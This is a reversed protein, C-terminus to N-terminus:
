KNEELTAFCASEQLPRPLASPQCSSSINQGLLIPPDKESVSPVSHEVPSTPIETPTSLPSEEAPGVPQDKAKHTSSTEPMSVSENPIKPHERQIINSSKQISNVPEELPSVSLLKEKTTSRAKLAKSPEQSTLTSSKNLLTKPCDRADINSPKGKANVLREKSSTSGPGQKQSKKKTLSRLLSPKNINNVPALSRPTKTLQLTSSAASECKSQTKSEDSLLTKGGLTQQKVTSTLMVEGATSQHKESSSLVIKGNSLLQKGSSSLLVRGFPLSNKRVPALMVKGAPLHNKGFSALLVKGSSLSKKGLTTLLVKGSPLSKQGTSALFLKKGAVSNQGSGLIIKGAPVSKQESSGLIAKGTTKANTGLALVVKGSGSTSSVTPPLLVKKLSPNSKHSDTNEKANDVTEKKPSPGASDCQESSSNEYERIEGPELPHPGCPDHETCSLRGDLKSIFLMGERHQKCFSSPCMECFSAAEKRCVDCQHWPCEWKGAPRRTLSLCDAHFVKPCGPRKCSVLQGGDGCSFCEDEHEKVLERAKRKRYKKKRARDESVIPQNKPRVGLFGSCNPAGCKCVTKGNGLCELNYNFTLETGAKIDCLAFLGVRTDGNVTWKQTECNPQCCHNMFRAFNGKPGADIVRDKDLTLMYFNTIDQEQAYRIRARCEEEDIMEGVYENVFEGKKIDSKCRLGWGRSLTRFIEVEPYQRKSFAQNQCREGAPCVQPHCEYLLMRNICESDQGCPNEDSAKCNCRPIESLDATFIQVKGIPRNVKIHKYPPPKKDNKKEEQLQRIEKQAKLEEFRDAAEMLGKKYTADVGKSMKDKNLADGEMYPFVRAQHTWLYDNSGFFLVPFEGIDHKMKQINVPINKPHCVEAPWWRYRGVKVWVVEKYHPKKGAKCDNCFWSGEPMNINLCERHFAAPCSECCLLSGGESCVFCWSVNVHEHNKCGRRPTFHNPCIISNSALTVTGAAMCFDNAHYAVPCRVCRMLRGKSASPNSPNTAHCTMCIHLSCRVGKNHQITPPYKIACKEHYYKGCLSVLCRKVTQDSAKCVFCTHVGSNLSLSVSSCERCIFKGEPMSDMGLCELHFAGCCQSECLLLEGPKECVQCVNEKMAAGGGRESSIKKSLPGGHEHEQGDDATDSPSTVGNEQLEMESCLAERSVVRKKQFKGPLRLRKRKRRNESLRKSGGRFRFRKLPNKKYPVPDSIKAVPPLSEEEDFGLQSELDDFECVRPILKSKRRNGGPKPEPSEETVNNSESKGLNTSSPPNNKVDSPDNAAPKQSTIKGSCPESLVVSSSSAIAGDEYEFQQDTKAKKQECVDSQLSDGMQKRPRKRPGRSKVRDNAHKGFRQRPKRRCKKGLNTGRRPPKAQVASCETEPPTVNIEGQESVEVGQASTNFKAVQCVKSSSSNLSNEPEQQNFKKWRKKPAVCNMDESEDWVSLENSLESEQVCDENYSALMDSSSHQQFLAKRAEPSEAPSYAVTDCSPNGLHDKILKDEHPPPSVDVPKRNICGPSIVTGKHPSSLSESTNVNETESIRRKQLISPKVFKTSKRTPTQTEDKLDANNPINTEKSVNTSCNSKQTGMQCFSVENKIASVHYDEENESTQLGGSSPSHKSTANPTCESSDEHTPSSFSSTSQGTMLHNEKTKTDHMDKLMMLLSSFKYDPAMKIRSQEPPSQFQDSVDSSKSENKKKSSARSTLEKLGCIVNKVASSEMERSKRPKEHANNLLKKKEIKSPLLKPSRHITKSDIVCNKFKHSESSHESKISAKDEIHLSITENDVYKQGPSSANQLKGCSGSLSFSQEESSRENCLANDSSHVSSIDRINSDSCLVDESPLAVDKSSGQSTAESKARRKSSSLPRSKTLNRSRKKKKCVSMSVNGQSSGCQKRPKKPLREKVFSLVSKLPGTQSDMQENDCQTKRQELTVHYDEDGANKDWEESSLSSLLDAIPTSHSSEKNIGFPENLEESIADHERQSPAMATNVDKIENSWFEPSVSGRSVVEDDSVRVSKSTRKKSPRSHKSAKKSVSKLKTFSPLDSNHLSNVCGNLVSSATGNSEKVGYKSHQNIQVENQGFNGCQASRWCGKSIYEQARAIGTQWLPLLKSPVEKKVPRERQKQPRRLDPLEAFQQVGIFQVVARAPVWIKETLEGLTEVYYQRPAKKGSADNKPPQGEQVPSACIRCPWWPRRNFKAWVVDGEEHRVPPTKKKRKRPLQSADPPGGANAEMNVLDEDVSVSEEEKHVLNLTRHGSLRNDVQSVGSLSPARELISISSNHIHSSNPIEPDQIMALFSTKTEMSRNGVTSDGDDGWNLPVLNGLDSVFDSATNLKSRTEGIHMNDAVSPQQGYVPLDMGFGPGDLEYNLHEMGYEVEEMGLHCFQDFSHMGNRVNKPLKVPPEPLYRHASQQGTLHMAPEGQSYYFPPPNGESRNGESDQSGNIGDMSIMSALDQLKRLPIYHSSPDQGYGSTCSQLPSALPVSCGNPPDLVSRDGVPCKNQVNLDLSNFYVPANSLRDLECAEDM